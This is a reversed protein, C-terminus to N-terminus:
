VKKKKDNLLRQEMYDLVAPHSNELLSSMVLPIVPTRKNLNIKFKNLSESGSNIGKLKRELLMLSSSVNNRFKIQRKLTEVNNKDIVSPRKNEKELFSNVRKKHLEFISLLKSLWGYGYPSENKQVSDLATSLEVAHLVKNEVILYEVGYFSECDNFDNMLVWNNDKNKIIEFDNNFTHKFKKVIETVTYNLEQEELLDLDNIM